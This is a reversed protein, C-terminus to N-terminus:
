TPSPSDKLWLLSFSHPYIVLSVTLDLKDSGEGSIKNFFHLLLQFLQIPHLLTLLEPGNKPTDMIHSVNRKGFLYNSIKKQIPTDM